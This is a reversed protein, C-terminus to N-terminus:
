LIRKTEALIRKKVKSWTLKTEKLLIIEDETDADEFFTLSRTLGFIDQTQFKESFLNLLAEISFNQLLFYLDYFDKRAGRNAITNLKMAAIDEVGLLRVEDKTVVPRIPPIPFYVLDTKVDSIFVHAGIPTKVKVDLAIKQGLVNVLHDVEFKNWSFLDIDESIRHGYWLALATGGVLTFESLSPESM